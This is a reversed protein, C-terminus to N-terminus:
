KAPQHDFSIVEKLIWKENVLLYLHIFRASGTIVDPKNKERIYFHHIGTQVAGYLVNNDYMPFVELSNVDVKRIPKHVTDGCIYKKTNEIFIERNQIGSKDHYFKLDPAIAQELYNLDCRNFIREFFVSDQTKLRRFLDSDKPVQASLKHFTTLLLAMAVVSYRRM